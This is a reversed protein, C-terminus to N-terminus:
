KRDGVAYYEWQHRLFPNQKYGQSGPSRLINAFTYQDVIWPAWATVLENM